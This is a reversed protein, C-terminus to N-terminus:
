FTFHIENLIKDLENINSPWWDMYTNPGYTDSCSVYFKVSLGTKQPETLKDFDKKIEQIQKMTLKTDHKKEYYDVIEDSEDRVTWCIGFVIGDTYIGM